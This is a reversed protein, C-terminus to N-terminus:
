GGGVRVSGDAQVRGSVMLGSALNRVPIVEGASGEQLAAGYATIILGGEEFLLLVKAGNSIVKLSAVANVPIPSGPLLTRRVAKGVLAARAAVSSQAASGPVATDALWEDKIIDGPYIVIRPTPLIVSDEAFLASPGSAAVVICICAICGASRLLRLALM